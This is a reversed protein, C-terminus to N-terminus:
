PHTARAALIARRPGEAEGPLGAIAISCHMLRAVANDCSRYRLERPTSRGRGPQPCLAGKTLGNAHREREEQAREQWAHPKDKEAKDRAPKIDQRAPRGSIGHGPPAGQADGGSGQRGGAPDLTDQMSRSAVIADQLGDETPGSSFRAFTTESKGSRNESARSDLRTNTYRPSTAAPPHDRQVRWQIERPVDLAFAMREDPPTLPEGLSETDARGARQRSAPPLPTADV